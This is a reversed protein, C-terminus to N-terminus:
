LKVQNLKNVVAQEENKNIQNGFKFMYEIM